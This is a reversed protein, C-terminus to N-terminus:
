RRNLLLGIVVGLIASLGAAIAISQWPNAHVYRDTDKAASRARQLAADELGALRERAVKLNQEIGARVTHAKEGSASSISKLLEETDTVVQNFDQLLKDRTAQAESMANEKM